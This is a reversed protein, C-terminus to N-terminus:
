SPVGAGLSKRAWLFWGHRVADGLFPCGFHDLVSQFFWWWLNRMSLFHAWSRDRELDTTPMCAEACGEVFFSPIDLGDIPNTILVLWDDGDEMSVESISGLDLVDALHDSSGGVDM